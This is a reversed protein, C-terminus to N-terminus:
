RCYISRYARGSRGSPSRGLPISESWQAQDAPDAAATIYPGSLLLAAAVLIQYEMSRFSSM